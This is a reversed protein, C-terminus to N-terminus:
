KKQDILQLRLVDLTDHVEQYKVIAKQAREELDAGTSPNLGTVTLDHALLQQQLGLLISSNVRLDYGIAVLMREFRGIMWYILAGLIGVQAMLEVFGPIQFAPAAQALIATGGTLGASKESLRLDRDSAEERLRCEFNDAAMKIESVLDQWICM